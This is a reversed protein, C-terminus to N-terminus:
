LCINGSSKRGLAMGLQVTSESAEQKRYREGRPSHSRRQPINRQLVPVMLLKQESQANEVSTTSGNVAM